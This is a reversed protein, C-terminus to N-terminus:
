RGEIMLARERGRTTATYIWRSSFPVQKGNPLTTSKRFNRNSADGRELFVTVRRSESGQASHATLCYGWTVPQPEPLLSKTLDIHYARWDPVWPAGGDFWEGGKSDPGGQVTVLLKGGGPTRMWLTRIGLTGPKTVGKYTSPERAGLMPGDEFGRCEVIEGNLYGQGNKKILVPEGDDPLPGDHGLRERIMRNARMRVANKWTVLLHDDRDSLYEDVASTMPDSERRYEYGGKEDPDSQRLIEGTERVHTAARLIGGANRMVTKLEAGKVHAFISYDEGFQQLEQGTIVPPLQFSDGVLIARVGWRQLDAFVSPGMMSSEDVLVIGGPMDRLRTFRLEEGPRPPWYMTAHLTGAECGTVRRLRLAAKGTMATLAASTYRRAVERMLTSKGTGAPGTLAFFPPLDRMQEIREHWPISYDPQGHWADIADLVAHQEETWVIASQNPPETKDDEFDPEDDDGGEIYPADSLASAAIAADIQTLAENAPYSPASPINDFADPPLPPPESPVPLPPASLVEIARVVVESTPMEAIRAGIGRKFVSEATDALERLAALLDAVSARKLMEDGDILEVLHHM